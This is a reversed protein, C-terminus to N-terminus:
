HQIYSRVDNVCIQSKTKMCCICKADFPKLFKKGVATSVRPNSVVVVSYIYKRRMRGPMSSRALANHLTRVHGGYRIAPMIVIGYAQLEPYKLSRVHCIVIALPTAIIPKITPQAVRFVPAFYKAIIKNAM